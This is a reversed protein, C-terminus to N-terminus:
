SEKTSSKIFSKGTMAREASSKNGANSRTIHFQTKSEKRGFNAPDSTSLRTNLFTASGRASADRQLDLLSWHSAEDHVKMLKVISKTANALSKQSQMIRKLEKKQLKRSDEDAKIKSLNSLGSTLGNPTALM